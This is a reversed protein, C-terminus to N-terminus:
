ESDIYGDASYSYGRRGGRKLQGGEGASRKNPALLTAMAQVERSIRALKWELLAVLEARDKTDVQNVARGDVELWLRTLATSFAPNRVEYHPVENLCVYVVARDMQWIRLREATDALGKSPGEPMRMAAQLHQKTKDEAERGPARCLRVLSAFDEDKERRLRRRDLHAALMCWGLLAVSIVAQVVSTRTQWIAAQALDGSHQQM